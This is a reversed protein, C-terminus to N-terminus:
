TSYLAGASHFAAHEPLQIRDPGPLYGARGGGFRMEVPWSSLVAEAGALREPEPRLGVGEAQKTKECHNYLRDALARCNATLDDDASFGKLQLLLAAASTEGDSEL